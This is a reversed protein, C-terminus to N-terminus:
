DVFYTDGPKRPKGAMAGPGREGPIFRQTVWEDWGAVFEMPPSVKLGRRWQEAFKDPNPTQFTKVDYCHL